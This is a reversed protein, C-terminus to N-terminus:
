HLSNMAEMGESRSDSSVSKEIECKQVWLKVESVRRTRSLTYETRNDLDIM